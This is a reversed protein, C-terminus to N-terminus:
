YTSLCCRISGHIYIYAIVTCSNTPTCSTKTASVIHYTVVTSSFVTSSVTIERYLQCRHWWTISATIAVQIWLTDNTQEEKEEMWACADQQFVLASIADCCVFAHLFCLKDHRFHVTPNNNKNIKESTSKYESPGAFLIGCHSSNGSSNTPREVAQQHVSFRNNSLRWSM